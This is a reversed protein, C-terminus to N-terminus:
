HNELFTYPLTHDIKAAYVRYTLTGLPSIKVLDKVSIGYKTYNYASNFVGPIGKVFMVEVIPYKTGLTYRNYDTEIFRELYAFRLKVALEFSTLPTGSTTPFSSKPPLNQLPLYQRHTVFWETSFGKGLENFVEFRTDELQIFKRNTNPKRVAVS